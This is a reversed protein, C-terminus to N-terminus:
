DEKFETSLLVVNGSTGSKKGEVSGDKVSYSSENGEKDKTKVALKDEESIFSVGTDLIKFAAKIVNNENDSNRMVRQIKSFAELSGKKIEDRIEDNSPLKNKSGQKRGGRNINKRLEPNAFGKPKKPADEKDSM